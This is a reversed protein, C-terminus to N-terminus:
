ASLLQFYLGGTALNASPSGEVVTGIEVINGGAVVIGKANVQVASYAGATVGSNGLTPTASTDSVIDTTGDAKKGSNITVGTIYAATDLTWTNAATKKLLGSTGTLGAIATLDADLPQYSTTDLGLGGSSDISLLATGSSPATVNLGATIDTGSVTFEVNSSKFNATGATTTNLVSTGDVSIGRYAHSTLVESGGSYLKTAYLYGNYNLRTTKSPAVTGLYLKGANADTGVWTSNATTSDYPAYTIATGNNSGDLISDTATATDTFVGALQVTKTTTGDTIEFAGATTSAKWNFTKADSGDYTSVTSGGGQITIANPNKLSTVETAETIHGQADFKISSLKSTTQATISNTHSFVFRNNATSTEIDIGDEGKFSFGTENTWTSTGLEQSQLTVIGDYTTGSAGSVTTRYHTNTDTDVSTHLVDWHAHTNSGKAETCVIIDGVYAQEASGGTYDATVNFDTTVRVWDGPGASTDLSGLNTTSAVTGLYEVGQSVKNDVYTKITAATPLKDTEGSAALTTDTTYDKVAATGLTVDSGSSNSITGGSQSVGAKLTVVDGSKSAITASGDNFATQKGNALDYAAKVAKSTAATTSVNSSTSDSLQVVGKQGTTASQIDQFTAQIKGDVESLTALTRLPGGATGSTPTAVLDNVDLTELAKSVGTGTIAVTGSSNYTNAIDSIQSSTISIDQFTAAVKGDTETLTAITKGAGMGTIAGTGSAPVDLTDIAAKIAKGNVITNSTGSYSSTVPITAVHNTVISTPTTTDVQIKVDNVGTGTALADLADKVNTVTTGDITGSYEVISAKTEPHLTLIDTYYTNIQWTSSTNAVYDNGSKIFYKTYNTSWDSPQETLLTYNILQQIRYDKVQGKKGENAM